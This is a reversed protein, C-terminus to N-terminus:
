ARGSSAPRTMSATTLATSTGTVTFNRLPQSPSVDVGHGERLHALLRTCCGDGHVPVRAHLHVGATGVPVDDAVDFAGHRDGDDGVAVNKGARVRRVDQAIRAGIEGHDAAAAEAIRPQERAAIGGDRALRFRGQRRQVSRIPRRQM